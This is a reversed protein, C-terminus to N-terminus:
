RKPNILISLEVKEYRKDVEFISDSLKKKILQKVETETISNGGYMIIKMPFGNEILDMFSELHLYLKSETHQLLSAMYDNYLDLNLDYNIYNKLNEAIWVEEVIKNNQKILYKRSAFGAISSYNPTKKIERLTQQENQKGSIEEIIKKVNRLEQKTLSKEFYNNRAILHIDSNLKFDLLCKNFEKISGRWYRKKRTDLFSLEGKSFIISNNETVVKFKDKNLYYINRFETGNKNINMKVILGDNRSFFIVVGILCFLFLLTYLLLKNM